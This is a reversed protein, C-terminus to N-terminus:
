FDYRSAGEPRTETKQVAQDFQRTVKAIHQTLAKISTECDRYIKLSPNLVIKEHPVGHSDCREEKLWSGRKSIDKAAARSDKRLRKVARRLESIQRRLAGPKSEREMPLPKVKAGPIKELM